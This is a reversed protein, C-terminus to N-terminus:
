SQNGIMWSGDPLALYCTSASPRPFTGNRGTVLADPRTEEPCAPIDLFRYGKRTMCQREARSRLADNEDIVTTQGGYIQGGTTTCITQTGVQNCITQLPTQFTPSTRTVLRQPVRQAAEIECDTRDNDLTAATAGAKYPFDRLPTGAKYRDYLTPAACGVFLLCGSLCAIVSRM